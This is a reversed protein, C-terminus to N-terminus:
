PQEPFTNKELLNSCSSSTMAAGGGSRRGVGGGSRGEIATPSPRTAANGGTISVGRTPPPERPPINIGVNGGPGTVGARGGGGTAKGPRGDGGWPPGFGERSPAGRTLRSGWRGTRPPVIKDLRGGTCRRENARRPNYRCPPRAARGRLMAVGAAAAPWVGPNAETGACSGAKAPRSGTSGELGDGRTAMAKRDDSVSPPSAKGRATARGTHWGGTGSARAM